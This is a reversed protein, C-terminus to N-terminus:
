TSDPRADSRLMGKLGSSNCARRAEVRHLCSDAVLRRIPDARGIGLKRAQNAPRSVGIVAFDLRLSPPPMGPAFLPSPPVAVHAAPWDPNRQGLM